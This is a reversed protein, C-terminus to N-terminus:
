YEFLMRTWSHFFSHSNSHLVCFFGSEYFFGTKKQCCIDKKWIIKLYEGNVKKVPVTSSANEILFQTTPPLMQQIEYKQPKKIQKRACLVHKIWEKWTFAGPQRRDNACENVTPWGSDFTSGLRLFEFALIWIVCWMIQVVITPLLFSTIFDSPPMFIM